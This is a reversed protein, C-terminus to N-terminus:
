RVRVRTTVQKEFMADTIEDMQSGNLGMFLFNGKVANRIELKQADSKAFFKKEYRCGVLVVKGFLWEALGRLSSWAFRKLGANIPYCHPKRRKQMGLQKQM